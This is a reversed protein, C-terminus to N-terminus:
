VLLYSMGDVAFEARFSNLTLIEVVELEAVTARYPDVTFTNKTVYGIHFWSTYIPGGDASLAVPEGM